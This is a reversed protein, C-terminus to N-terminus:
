RPFAGFPWPLQATSNCHQAPFPLSCLSGVSIDQFDTEEAYLSITSLLIRFLIETPKTPFHHTQETKIKNLILLPFMGYMKRQSSPASSPQLARKLDKLLPWALLSPVAGSARHCAPDCSMSFVAYVGALVLLETHLPAAGLLDAVPCWSRGKCTLMGSSHRHLFRRGAGPWPPVPVSSRDRKLGFPSWVLLFATTQLPPSNTAVELLGEFRARCPQCDRECEFLGFQSIVTNGKEGRM